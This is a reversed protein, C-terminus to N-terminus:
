THYIYSYWLQALCIMVATLAIIGTIRDYTKVTGRNLILVLVWLVSLVLVGALRRERRSHEPFFSVIFQFIVYLLAPLYAHQQINSNNLM